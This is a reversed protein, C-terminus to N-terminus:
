GYNVKINALGDKINAKILIQNVSVSDGGPSAEVVAVGLAGVVAEEFVM